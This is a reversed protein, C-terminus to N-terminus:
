EQWFEGEITDDISNNKSKNAYKPKPTSVKKNIFYRIIGQRFFPILGLIGIFDTIFGPTLLFIGSIIIVVGEIMEVAPPIGRSMQLQASQITNIGQQKILFSGIGATLIILLITMLGGIVEGVQIITYIEILTTIIFIPFLIKM